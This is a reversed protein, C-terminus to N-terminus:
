IHFFEQSANPTVAAPCSILVPLHPNKCKMIILYYGRNSIIKGLEAPLRVHAAERIFTNSHLVAPWM